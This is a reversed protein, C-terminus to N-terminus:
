VTLDCREQEDREKATKNLAYRKLQNKAVHNKWDNGLDVVNRCVSSKVM